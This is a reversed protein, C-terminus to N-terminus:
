NFHLQGSMNHYMCVSVYAYLYLSLQQIMYHAHVCEIKTIFSCSPIGFSENNKFSKMEVLIHKQELGAQHYVSVNSFQFCNVSITLLRDFFCQLIYEVLM